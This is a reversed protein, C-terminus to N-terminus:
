RPASRARPRRAWSASSRRSGSSRDKTEKLHEEFATRLEDNTAAKAMKPLAKLLQKEVYYLDALQDDFLKRLGM